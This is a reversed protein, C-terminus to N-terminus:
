LPGYKKIFKKLRQLRSNDFIKNNDYDLIYNRQDGSGLVFKSAPDASSNLNIDYYVRKTKNENTGSRHWLYSNIIIIDGFDVTSAIVKLNYPVLTEKLGGVDGLYGFNHSDPM